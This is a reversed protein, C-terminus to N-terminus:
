SQEQTRLRPDLLMNAIDSLLTMFTYVLAIFLVCGLILPYDRQELGNVLLLGFGPWSFITETIIAGTLLAGAQLFLIVVVPLLANKLLHRRWILYQTAGKAKATRIFEAFKLEILANRLQRTLLAAVALGLTLAPLIIHALGERGGVPLWKYHLSFVLILLPGLLFSPLAILLGTALQTLQDPWRNHWYASFIGAPLGLSIAILLAAIALEITAPAKELILPLVPQHTLLSSGWDGKLLNLWYSFYQQLLPQDLGLTHRLAELTEPPALEGAILLLPDGPVLHILFFTLTIVGFVTILLLFLRHMLWVM